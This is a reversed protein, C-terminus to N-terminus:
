VDDHLLDELDLTIMVQEREKVAVHEPPLTLLMEISHKKPGDKTAM